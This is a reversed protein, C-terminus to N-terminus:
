DSRGTDEHFHPEVTVSFPASSTLHHPDRLYVGRCRAQQGLLGTTTVQRMSLCPNVFGARQEVSLCVFVMLSSVETPVLCLSLAPGPVRPRYVHVVTPRGASSSSGLM